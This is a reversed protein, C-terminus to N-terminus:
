LALIVAWEADLAAQDFGLEAALLNVLPHDRNIETSYEWLVLSEAQEMEDPVLTAITAEIMAATVGQRLLWRRVQVPSAAPFQMRRDAALEEASKDAAVRQVTITQAVEDITRSVELRQTAPDHDEDDLDTQTMELLHPDLGDVPGGDARPYPQLKQTQTNYLFKKM